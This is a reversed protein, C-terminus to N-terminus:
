LALKSLGNELLYGWGGVKNGWHIKQVSLSLLAFDFIVPFNLRELRRKPWKWRFTMYVDNEGEAKAWFSFNDWSEYMNFVWMFRYGKSEWFRQRDIMEEPEMPKSQFEYVVGKWIVDARHDDVIIETCEIPFLNKCYAHWETEKGDEHPCVNEHAWHWVNIEGCKSVVNGKCMACVGKLKPEALRRGGDVLAIRM